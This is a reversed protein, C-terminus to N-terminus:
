FKHDRLQTFNEMATQKLPGEPFQEIWKGAGVPDTQTWRQVISIVTDDMLRGPPLQSVAVAAAMAPDEVAWEVLIRALVQDRVAGKPLQAAWEAAERPQATAWQAAAHDVVANREESPPLDAVLDIAGVADKPATEYAIKILGEDQGVGADWTKVWEAARAADTDAWVTAVTQLAETREEGPPLSEAYAAASQPHFTTLRRLLGTAIEKGVGDIASERFFTIADPVDTGALSTILAEAHAIREAPDAIASLDALARAWEPHAAALAARARDAGRNGTAPPAGAARSSERLSGAV